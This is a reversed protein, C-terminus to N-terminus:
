LRLLTDELRDLLRLDGQRGLVLALVPRDLKSSPEVRNLSVKAVIALGVAAVLILNDENTSFQLALGAVPVVMTDLIQM